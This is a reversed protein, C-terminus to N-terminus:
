TGFANAMLRAGPLAMFRASENVSVIVSAAALLMVVVSSTRTTPAFSTGTISLTSSWSASVSAASVKPLCLPLKLASSTSGDPLM